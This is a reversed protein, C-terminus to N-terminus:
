RRNQSRGQQDKEDGQRVEGEGLKIRISNGNPLLGLALGVGTLLAPAALLLLGREGFGLGAEAPKKM